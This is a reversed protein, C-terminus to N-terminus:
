SILGMQANALLGFDFRSPILKPCVEHRYVSYHGERYLTVFGTEYSGTIPTINISVFFLTVM